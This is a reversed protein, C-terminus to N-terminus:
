RMELDNYQDHVDEFYPDTMLEDSNPRFDANYRLM